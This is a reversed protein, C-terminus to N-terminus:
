KKSPYDYKIRLEIDTVDKFVEKILQIVRKREEVWIPKQIMANDPIPEQIAESLAGLLTEIRHKRVVPIYHGRTKEPLSERTHKEDVWLIEAMKIV